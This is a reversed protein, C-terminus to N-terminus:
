FGGRQASKNLEENLIRKIEIGTAEPTASGDVTIQISNSTTTQAVAQSESGGGFMSLADDVLGGTFSGVSNGIESVSPLEPLTFTLAESIAKGLDKFMDIADDVWQMLSSFMAKGTETQTTFYVLGASLLAIAKIALGIPNASLAVGIGALAVAAAGAVSSLIPFNDIFDGLVSGEGSLFSMLDDFALFLVGVAIIAPAMAIITNGSLYLMAIGVLKITDEIGGLLNNLKIFPQAIRSIIGFIYSSLKAIAEFISTITESIEKMNEEAFKNFAKIAPNITGELMNASVKNLIGTTVTSARQWGSMFDQSSKKMQETTVGGLLELENGLDNLGQSGQQMTQLLKPSIGVRSMLDIAETSDLDKVGDSIALLLDSTDEYETPNVGLRGWAEFDGKGRLLEEQAKALSGLSSTIDGMGAGNDEAAFTLREISQTTADVRESTKILEDTTNAYGKSMAFIAGSAATVAATVVAFSKVTTAISADLNKFGMKDWALDIQYILEDTM